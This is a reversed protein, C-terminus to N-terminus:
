PIHQVSLILIFIHFLNFSIWVAIYYMELEESSNKISQCSAAGNAPDTEGNALRMMENDWQRHM